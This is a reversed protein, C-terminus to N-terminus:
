NLRMVIFLEDVLSKFIDTETFYAALKAQSEESM